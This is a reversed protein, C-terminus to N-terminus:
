FEMAVQVPVPRVISPNNVEIEKLEKHVPTCLINYLTGRSIHWKPAIHQRLIVTTPIGLRAHKNYEDLIDRYRLLTNLRAGQQQVRM